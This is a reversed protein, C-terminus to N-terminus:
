LANRLEQETEFALDSDATYIQGEADTLELQVVDGYDEETRTGDTYKAIFETVGVVTFAEPENGVWAWVTQGIYNENSGYTEM